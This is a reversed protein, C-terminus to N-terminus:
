PVVVAGITFAVGGFNVVPVLVVEEVVAPVVDSAVVLVNAGSVM